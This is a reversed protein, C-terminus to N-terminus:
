SGIFFANNIIGIWAVPKIRSEFRYNDGKITLKTSANAQTVSLTQLEYSATFNSLEAISLKSFFIFGFILTYHIIKRPRYM